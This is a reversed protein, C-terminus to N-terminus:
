TVHVAFFHQVGECLRQVALLVLVMGMLKELATIGNNGLYKQLYPAALLVFFSGIVAIVIASLMLPQSPELNAYLMITALLSPGALLPIALPIIFPEGKPLNNRFSDLTPFLIKIAILFLIAGSALCITTHSIQLLDFIFKGLFNFLIMAVFAIGLERMLIMRRRAPVIGRTLTLYSSVNGVPDMILFLILSVSLLSM